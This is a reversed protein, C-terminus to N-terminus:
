DARSQPFLEVSFLVAPRIHFQQCVVFVIEVGLRPPIIGNEIKDLTKIGIGLIQAMEKKSYGYFKRLGTINRFLIKLAKTNM